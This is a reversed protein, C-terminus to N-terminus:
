DDEGPWFSDKQEPADPLIWWNNAFGVILGGVVLAAPAAIMYFPTKRKIAFSPTFGDIQENSIGSVKIRYGDEAKMGAPIKWTYDTVGNVVTLSDIKQDYQYLDLQINETNSNAGYWSVTIPKGRKFVKGTDPASIYFDPLARVHFAVEGRFRGLQAVPNWVVQHNGARIETGINGRANELAITDGNLIGLMEVQYTRGPEPDALQYSVLISDGEARAQLNQIQQPFLSSTTTILLLFCLLKPTM